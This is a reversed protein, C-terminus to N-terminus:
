AARQQAHTGHSMCGIGDHSILLSQYQQHGPLAATWRATQQSNQLTATTCRRFIAVSGVIRARCRFMRNCCGPLVLQPTWQLRRCHMVTLRCRHQQNGSMQAKLKNQHHFGGYLLVATCPSRHRSRQTTFEHQSAALVKRGFMGVRGAKALTVVVDLYTGEV